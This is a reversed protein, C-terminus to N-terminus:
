KKIKEMIKQIGEHEIPKGQSYFEGIKKSYPIKSIIQTNHKKAINVIVEEPGIGERNLVIESKVNLKETLSVVDIPNGKVFIHYIAEYIIRHKDAYFSEPFVTVSVDHMVDPKLIIAGLLAKEADVNHPPVRLHRSTQTSNAM